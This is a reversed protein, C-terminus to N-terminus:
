RKPLRINHKKSMAILAEAVGMADDVPNHTHPTKSLYGFKTDFFDKQLGAYFDGLRRASHGFPNRGVYRHCYYNIWQFDFAPNDSIMTPRHHVNNQEVWEVFRQMEASPDPYTLHEVRTINAVALAEPYWMASIPSVKGFFVNTLASDADVIVAGFSVMSCLGPCPGDAEVDIAFLTM